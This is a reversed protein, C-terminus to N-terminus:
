GDPRFMAWTTFASGVDASGLVRYGFRRYLPLNSEVETTLSVGASTPDAASRDHVADLLRRGHGRGQESPRVGIMNLHLHDDPITFRGAVDGFAEYRSRAPTGLAAWTEERLAALSPPSPGSGPRSVLAAASIRHPPIRSPPDPPHSPPHAPPHAPVLRTGSGDTAPGLVGLVTEGRLVRARVFFTILTALRGAYDGELGLVFRMVPYDSFAEALVAVVEPVHDATLTQVTPIPPTPEM